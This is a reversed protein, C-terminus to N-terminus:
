REDGWEVDGSIEAGPPVQEVTQGHQVPVRSIEARTTKDRFMEQTIQYGLERYAEFQFEGFSQDATTQDPYSPHKSKYGYIDAPLSPTLTTKLYIM